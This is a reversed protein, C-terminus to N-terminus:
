KKMGLREKVVSVVDEIHWDSKVLYDHVGNKLADEVKFSDSLNTLIIVPIKKGASTKRLQELMSIGDMKPMIIDLLILDPKKEHAMELGQAGDHAVLVTFGVSKFKMELAKYLTPEDEVILLTKNKIM